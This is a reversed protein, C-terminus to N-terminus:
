YSNDKFSLFSCDRNTIDFICTEDSDLNLYKRIEIEQRKATSYNYFAEAAIPIGSQVVVVIWKKEISETKM